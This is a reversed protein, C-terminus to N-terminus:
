AAVRRENNVFEMVKVPNNAVDAYDIPRYVHHKGYVTSNPMVRQQRTTIGVPRALHCDANLLAAQYMDWLAETAADQQEKIMEDLKSIRELIQPDIAVGEAKCDRIFTTLMGLERKLKHLDSM